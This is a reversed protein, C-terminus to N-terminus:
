FNGPPCGWVGELRVVELPPAVRRVYAILMAHEGRGVENVVGAVRGWDSISVNVYYYYYYYWLVRVFALSCHM